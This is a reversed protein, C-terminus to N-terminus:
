IPLKLFLSADLHCNQCNVHFLGPVVCCMDEHSSGASMLAMFYVMILMSPGGFTLSLLFANRWKKIEEKHQLYDGQNDRQFLEAQFGLSNIQEIITRAGTM